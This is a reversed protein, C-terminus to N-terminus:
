KNEDLKNLGKHTHKLSTKVKKIDEKLAFDEPKVGSIDLM